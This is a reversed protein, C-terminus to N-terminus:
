VILSEMVANCAMDIKCWRRLILGLELNLLEFDARCPLTYHSARLPREVWSSALWRIESSMHVSEPSIKVSWLVCCTSLESFHGSNSDHESAVQKSKVQFSIFLCFMLSKNHWSYNLVAHFTSIDLIQSIGVSKNQVSYQVYIDVDDFAVICM